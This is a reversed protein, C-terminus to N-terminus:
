AAFKIRTEWAWHADWERNARNVRLALMHEANAALWWSGPRKLRSQIVYRHASEIEGSGIPLDQAIAGRYDLQEQRSSLYRWCRRVPADEDGRQTDEQHAQLVRLVGDIDGTKLRQRQQELWFSQAAPQDEIGLVAAALYECVHWFDLLYGGQEGFRHKVQQAIWPAGDGVVHVRQQTDLGARKACARLQKGATEVDGQLTAAYYVEQRNGQVHALSLRVEEWQASKGKRRDPVAQKSPRVTPVMSGDIEAILTHRGTLKDPLGLPSGASRQHIRQGHHLTVRGITSEPLVMGYHEVLKDMVQAFPVDAGFDSVVRQLRRSCGRARVRASDAFPRLRQKGFRYQPEEVRVDGLVTHWCLKKVRGTRGVV